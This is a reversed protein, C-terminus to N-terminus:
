ACRATRVPAISRASRRGPVSGPHLLAFRIGRWGLFPNTEHTTGLYSAVKDGGLDMTRFIVPRPAMREAVGRYARSLQEERAEAAGGSRSLFSPASSDRATPGRRGGREGGRGAARHEAGLEIRRGDLTVAPQDRLELLAKSTKEIHERRAEYEKTTVPDPDLDVAGLFGDVMGLQGQVVHQVVGQVGVV